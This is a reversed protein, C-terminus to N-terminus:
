KRQPAISATQLRWQMATNIQMARALRNRSELPVGCAAPFLSTAFAFRCHQFRPAGARGSFDRRSNTLPDFNLCEDM